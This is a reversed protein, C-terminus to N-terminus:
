CRGGKCVQPLGAWTFDLFPFCGHALIGLGVLGGGLGSFGFGAEVTERNLRGLRELADESRPGPLYGVAFVRRFLDVTELADALDWGLVRVDLYIDRRPYGLRDRLARTDLGAHCEHPYERVGTDTELRFAALVVLFAAEGVGDQYRYVLGGLFGPCGCLAPARPKKRVDHIEFVPAVM